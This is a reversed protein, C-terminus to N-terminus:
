KERLSEAIRLLEAESVPGSLSFGYRDTNWILNQMGKNYYSLGLYTGVSVETAEVDETDLVLATSTITFQTLEIMENEHFFMSQRFVDLEIVQSEELSFREPLWTPEFIIELIEPLESEAENSTFFVVSFREYVNVFFRIVPERLASISFVMIIMIVFTAALVLVVRRKNSRKHHGNMLHSMKLEFAPSFTHEIIPIRECERDMVESLAQIVMPNKEIFDQKM